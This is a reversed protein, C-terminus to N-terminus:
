GFLRKVAFNIASLHPNNKEPEPKKNKEQYEDLSEIDGCSRCWGRDQLLVGCHPCNTYDGVTM